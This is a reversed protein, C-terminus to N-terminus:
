SLVKPNYQYEHNGMLGTLLLRGKGDIAIDFDELSPVEDDSNSVKTIFGNHTCVFCNPVASGVVSGRIPIAADANWKWVSVNFIITSSM